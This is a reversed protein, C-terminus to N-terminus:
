LVDKNNFVYTAWDRTPHFVDKLEDDKEIAHLIDDKLIKKKKHQIAENGALEITEALLYELLGQLYLSGKDTFSVMHGHKNKFKKSALRKLFVGENTLLKIQHRLARTAEKRGMEAINTWEGLINLFYIEEDAIDTKQVKRFAYVMLTDLIENLYTKSEKTIVLDPQVQKCLKGLEADKFLASSASSAPAPSADSMKAVTCGKNVVWSCEKREVCDRKRLKTCGISTTPM